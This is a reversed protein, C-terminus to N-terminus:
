GLPPIWDNVLAVEEAWEDPTLRFYDIGKRALLSLFGRRTLGLLEAAKGGSIRGELCLGLLIYERATESAQAPAGLLTVFEPPLTVPFTLTDAM